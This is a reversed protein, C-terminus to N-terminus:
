KKWWSRNKIWWETTKKVGEEVTMVPEWGLAKKAKSCDLGRFNITTPRDSVYEIKSPSHGSYQLAWQIVEGVTTRLGSGVNFIDFKIRDNDLMLMIARAFDDSYIVDRTVDSSGWVEFPDMKDAAKRIIAPIFNSTKPDFRAYPGFINAARAVIVEMAYNTHWFKCIKEIYRNVWGVGYYASHPDKNLDLEDEKIQGDFEQYLSATSIFIIRNVGELHFAELMRSNMIVNENVYKWPESTLIGSGATFAASMIAGDCGKAMRRCDDLSKLDGQVYEVREHEFFPATNSYYAARVRAGPHNNLISQMIATGALGTAGALFVKKDDLYM